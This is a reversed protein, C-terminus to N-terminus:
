GYVHDLAMGRSIEVYTGNTYRYFSQADRSINLYRRTMYHKYLEIEGARGMYMFDSCQCRPLVRELPEWNPEEFSIQIDTSSNM